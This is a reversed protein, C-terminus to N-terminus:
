LQLRALDQREAMDIALREEASLNGQRISEYGQRIQEATKKPPILPIPKPAETAKRALYEALQRDREALSREEVLRMREASAKIAAQILAQQEQTLPKGESRLKCAIEYASLGGTPPAARGSEPREVSRLSTSSETRNEEILTRSNGDQLSEPSVSSVDVLRVKSDVLEIQKRKKYKSEHSEPSRSTGNQSKLKERHRYNSKREAISDPAQWFEWEHITLGLPTRTVCKHSVLLEIDRELQELTLGNMYHLIRPLNWTICVETGGYGFFKAAIAMLDYYTCRIARPVHSLKYNDLVSIYVKFYPGRLDAKM